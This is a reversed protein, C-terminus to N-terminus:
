RERRASLWSRRLVGFIRIDDILYRRFLRKPEQVLRYFWEFGISQIWKPARSRLGVHMELGGGCLLILPTQEMSPLVEDVLYTAMVASKVSSLGIIVLSPQHELIERRLRALVEQEADTGGQYFPPVVHRSGPRQDALRQAVEESSSVVLVDDFKYQEWMETFVSSGPLRGALQAGLFRSAFVVCQSDPLIFRAREALKAEPGTPDRDMRVVIDANPTFVVPELEGPIPPVGAFGLATRAVREVSAESVFSLGFLGLRDLEDGIQHRPLPREVTPTSRDVALLMSEISRGAGVSPRHRIQEGAPTMNSM